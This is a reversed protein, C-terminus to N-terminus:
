TLEELELRRMLARALNFQKGGQQDARQLLLQKAQERIGISTEQYAPYTVPGVDFLRGIRTITRHPLEDSEGEPFEWREEAITFAFSQGEVDGRKILEVVDRGTTTGLNPILEIFLGRENESLRLTKNSQRGLVLSSDHNFLGVTEGRQISEGFAASAISETFLGAITTRTNFLASYGELVVDGSDEERTHFSPELLRREM